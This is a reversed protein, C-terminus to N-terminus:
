GIYGLLLLLSGFGSEQRQICSSPSTCLHLKEPHHCRSAGFIRGLGLLLLLSGSKRHNKSAHLGSKSTCSKQTTTVAAGLIKGLLLLLLSGSTQIKSAHFAHCGSKSPSTCSKRTTAAAAPLTRRTCVGVFKKNCCEINSGLVM